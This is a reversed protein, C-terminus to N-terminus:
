KSLVAVIEWGKEFGLRTLVHETFLGIKESVDLSLRDKEPNLQNKYAKSRIWHEDSYDSRTFV